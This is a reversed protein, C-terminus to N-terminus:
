GALAALAAKHLGADGAAAVRGDSSITLARGRWDTMDGGAGKVVPVLACFDYPKLDAEVVLDIFGLALLGYALCEAGYVTHWVRQRLREFGAFESDSFM